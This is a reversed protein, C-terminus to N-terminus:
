GSLFATFLQISVRYEGFLKFILGDFFPVAPLDMWAQIGHGM